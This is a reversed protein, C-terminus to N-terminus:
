RKKRKEPKRRLLDGLSGLSRPAKGVYKRYDEGTEKDTGGAGAEGAEAAPLSLSIKKGEKDISDIRVEVTDGVAMVERAHAIRKGKGLKSIHLLGDIGPSLSIFAGFNTLRVVAGSHISGEPFKAWVEDWPDPLTAKLSLNIRNNEWDLKTIAVDLEQGVSLREHIDAVRDWGLESIPLLGQIGGIDVFAGFDRLSVVKGRVILGEKLVSKLAEQDKKRQEELIARRSLVVNRGRDGYETIKFPLRRGVYDKANEIRQLEMQSYPCFGRMDGALKIEFGGKVEKEVVGEIPIGTRWIDEIYARASNGAGVKTTFLKENLKSSLFYATIRDGEKVTLNGEPDTVEKRDLYGESKGGLDLFVWEPTIKVIVADVKQGPTLYDKKVESKEFLEAFSQEENSENIPEEVM